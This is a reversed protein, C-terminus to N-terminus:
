PSVSTVHRLADPDVVALRSGTQSAASKEPRMPKMGDIHFDHCTICTSPVRNSAVEGGHCSQCVEIAPMLVDSSKESTDVAHCSLCGVESHSGHDFTSKPFWKETIYVPEVTWVGTTPNDVVSHCEGCQGKGFRGSLIQASKEEAWNRAAVRDTEKLPTGPRRRVIVPADPEEYGGRLATANYIDSVQMFLEEPQGHVLERDPLQLDFTLTHCQHCHRDFDIPLMSVNGEDPVHCTRCGLEVIGETPHRVGSKRLHDAHPFTLGSNETPLDPGSMSKERSMQRLAPDVVVSPLFEPHDTGFDQVNRLMTTPEQGTLDAHCDVCFDQDNRAVTQNGQHEKHCSQCKDGDFSATPFHVPDTHHEISQHCTLCATDQVPIFPKEHCVECSEGFFKHAASIGGSTWFETPTVVADYTDAQEVNVLPEPVFWSIVMPWFLAVALVTLAAAWSWKRKSIGISKIGINARSKLNELEDGLPNILEVSITLDSDGKNPEIIVQFPGIQLVDLESVKALDVMNGNVSMSGEGVTEVYVENSRVTVRAHELLIRPDTLRIDCATSRGILVADCDMWEDRIALDGSSKRTGYRSLVKM